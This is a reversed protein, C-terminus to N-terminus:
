HAIALGGKALQVVKAFFELWLKEREKLNKERALATRLEQILELFRKARREHFALQEAQSARTYSEAKLDQHMNELLQQQRNDHEALMWACFIWKLGTRHSRRLRRQVSALRREGRRQHRKRCLVARTRKQRERQVERRKNLAYGFALGCLGSLVVCATLLVTETSTM